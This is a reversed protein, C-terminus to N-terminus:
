FIPASPHFMNGGRGAASLVLILIYYDNSTAPQESIVQNFTPRHQFCHPL